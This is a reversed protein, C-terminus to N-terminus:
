SCYCKWVLYECGDGWSVCVLPREGANCDEANDSDSEWVQSYADHNSEVTTPQVVQAITETASKSRSVLLPLEATPSQTPRDPSSSTM